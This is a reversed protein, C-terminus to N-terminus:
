RWIEGAAIEFFGLGDELRGRHAALDIRTAILNMADTGELYHRWSGHAEEIHGSIALLNWEGGLVFNGDIGGWCRKGLTLWCTGVSFVFNL